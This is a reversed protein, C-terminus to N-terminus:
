VLAACALDYADLSAFARVDAPLMRLATAPGGIWVTARKKLATLDALLRNRENLALSRSIGLTVISAGSRNVAWELDARPVDTGLYIVDIGRGMALMAAALVGFEHRHEAPTGIVMKPAGAGAAGTRARASLVSRVEASVLHEHAVSMEGSAWRQGVAQLVPLVLEFVLSRNDMVAAAQSLISSARATDLHRIADLYDGVVGPLTPPVANGLSADERRLRELAHLTEGAIESIAHGRGTLEALLTLKQIQESSYRRANGETRHPVIADYRREWARITDAPLGTARTVVRMPYRDMDKTQSM